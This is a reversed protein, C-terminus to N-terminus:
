HDLYTRLMNDEQEATYKFEDASTLLHESTAMVKTVCELLAAGEGPQPTTLSIQKGSKTKLIQDNIKGMSLKLM